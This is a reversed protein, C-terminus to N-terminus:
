LGLEWGVLLNQGASIGGDGNPIRTHMIVEFGRERASTEVMNCIPLNYSVGGTLGLVNGEADDAALDVMRSVLCQVFSRALDAKLRDTMGDMYEPMHGHLQAFLSGLDVRPPNGPITEAAFQFRDEGRQLFPEMRIASEGDYTRVTCIDLTCSLADLVRGLSSSQVSHSAVRSLDDLQTGGFRVPERGSLLDMALELRRPDRIAQDGGILPFTSLSAVRDRRDRSLNLVEGGWVTDDTGWGTGDLSLCTIPDFRGADLMLSAAHAFHHQVCVVDVDRDRALREGVRRSAYRPHLDVGVADLHDMGFLRSLHRTADELFNSVQYHTTNGIYQSLNLRGNSSFSSTCNLEAGMCIVRGQHPIPMPDPVFGRSRRLFFKGRTRPILVSDDTRNVIKRDHLLCLDAGLKFAHENDIAMPEGPVNASTMLLADAELHEFLILHAASYPLYFGIRDLGPGALDAMKRTDGDSKPVLVIPAAPSTLMERSRLDLRGWREATRLDRVMLAFPKSPRGYWDRFRQMENAICVLHMGGWGKMVGIAGGDLERAFRVFQRKGYGGQKGDNEDEGENGSGLDIANGKGDFLSYGPGCRPCSTTQAHFRRDLPSSYEKQCQPCMVYSSMATKPRDYPVDTILSFRAGCDTCNTFPYQFRRDGEDSIEERCQICIAADAPIPSDREGRVSTIIRFGGNDPGEGMGKELGDGSINEIRDESGAGKGDEPMERSTIQDIRALPPHQNQVRRVFERDDRDIVVEVSSGTNRVHGRLGMETAIRYIFPRFGVGQVVGTIVHLM